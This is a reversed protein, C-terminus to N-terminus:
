PTVPHSIAYCRTSYPALETLPKGYLHLHFTPVDDMARTAHIAAAPLCLVDYTKVAIHRPARVSASAGPDREYLTNRENGSLGVIVAWTGHGHPASTVGPGDSVLYLSPKGPAVHLPYLLEENGTAYRVQSANWDVSGALGQLLRGLEALEGAAPSDGLNLAAIEGVFKEIM